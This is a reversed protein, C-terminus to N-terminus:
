KAQALNGAASIEILDRAVKVRARLTLLYGEGVAIALCRHARDHYEYGDQWKNQWCFFDGINSLLIGARFLQHSYMVALFSSILTPGRTDDVAYKAQRDELATFFCREADIWERAHM